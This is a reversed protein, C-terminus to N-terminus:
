FFSFDSDGVLKNDTWLDYEKNAPRPSRPHLRPSKSKSKNSGKRSTNGSVKNEPHVDDSSGLRSGRKHDNDSTNGHNSKSPARSAAKEKRRHKSSGNSGSGGQKRGSSNSKRSKKFIFSHLYPALILVNLVITIASHSLM